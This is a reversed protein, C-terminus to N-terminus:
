RCVQGLAPSNNVSADQADAQREPWNAQRDSQGFPVYDATRQDEHSSTSSTAIHDTAIPMSDGIAERQGRSHQLLSQAGEFDPLDHSQQLLEQSAMEQEEALAVQTIANDVGLVSRFTPCAQNPVFDLLVAGLSISQSSAPDSLHLHKM